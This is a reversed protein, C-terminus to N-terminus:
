KSEVECPPSTNKWDLALKVTPITLNVQHQASYHYIKETIKGIELFSREMRKMLFELVNPCAILGVDKFAKKMVELLLGDNPEQIQVCLFTALRSKLAPETENFHLPMPSLWLCQASQYHVEELFFLLEKHDLVQDTLDLIYKGQPSVFSEHPCPLWVAHEKRAWLSGLHTKGSGKPGYLNLHGVPWTHAQIWQFAEYNTDGVCFSADDLLPRWSLPLIPHNM